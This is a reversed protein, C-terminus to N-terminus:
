AFAQRSNHSTKLFAEMAHFAVTSYNIEVAVWRYEYRRSPVKQQICSLAEKLLIISSIDDKQIQINIINYKISSQFM